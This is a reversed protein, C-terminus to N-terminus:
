EEIEVGVDRIWEICSKIQREILDQEIIINSHRILIEFDPSGYLYEYTPKSEHAAIRIKREDGDGDYFMIYIAESLGSEDVDYDGGLRKIESVLKNKINEIYDYIYSHAEQEHEGYEYGCTYCIGDDADWHNSLARDVIEDHLDEAEDYTMDPKSLPPDGDLIREWDEESYGMQKAIDEEAQYLDNDEGCNPCHPRTSGDGKGFDLIKFAKKLNEIEYMKNKQVM